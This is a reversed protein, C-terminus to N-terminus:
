ENRIGDLAARLRQVPGRLGNAEALEEVVEDDSAGVWMELPADTKIPVLQRMAVLYDAAELLRARLAPSGKMPGPSPHANAADALMDDISTYAQM